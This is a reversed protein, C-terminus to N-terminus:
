QHFSLESLVEGRGHIWFDLRRPAGGPVFSAPVVLGYPQVSGDIKSLYGRAVLGTQATWPAKGERLAQAREAGQKLLNRAVEVQSIHYFEDHALAYRVANHYIQVDPLLELLAPKGKLSVRLAEIERGLAAAGSELEARDEALIAVGPPPVRRVKEALNDAPGDAHVVIPVALFLCLFLSRANM